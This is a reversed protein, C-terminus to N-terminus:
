SLQSSAKRAPAPHPKRAVGLEGILLHVAALALLYMISCVVFIPGYGHRTVVSGIVLQAIGGAVGGLFGGFGTVTGVANASFVEAPLTLNGWAAHGFMVAALLLLALSPTSAKTILLCAALMGCSVFLMTSKRARNLSWGLSILFRPAAGSFLNGVTLAAFPIWAYMGIDKLDYGKESQLYKPTWFYLFYSIPDTLLRALMCGWAAPM